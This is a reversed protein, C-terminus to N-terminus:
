KQKKTEEDGEENDNDEDRNRKRSSTPLEQVSGDQDDEDSIGEEKVADEGENGLDLHSGNAGVQVQM